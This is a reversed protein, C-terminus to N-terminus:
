KRSLRAIADLVDHRMKATKMWPPLRSALSANHKPARQRLTARVYADLFSLHDRNYAWLTEGRVDARLWLPLGFYPDAAEGLKMGASWSTFSAAGCPCLIEIIRKAAVFRVPAKGLSDNCRPCRRRACARMASASPPPWGRRTFACHPCSLRPAGRLGRTREAVACGACKPCEVLAREAFSSVYPVWGSADIDQMRTAM